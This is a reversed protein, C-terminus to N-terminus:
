FEYSKFTSIWDNLTTWDPFQALFKEYEQSFSSRDATYHAAIGINLRKGTWSSPVEIDVSFHTDPRDQYLNYSSIFYLPQNKHYQNSEEINEYLSWKTIRVGDVAPSLYIGCNNDCSLEFILQQSTSSLQITNALRLESEM